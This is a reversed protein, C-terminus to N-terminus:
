RNAKLCAFLRINKKKIFYIFKCMFYCLSINKTKLIIYMLKLYLKKPRAYKISENFNYTELYSKIERKKENETLLCESSFLNVMCEILRDIYRRSIMELSNEDNLLGWYDYLDLMAIHEEERKTYLNSVYKQTESDARKRIFNYYPKKVYTVNQIDKIVDMVFPFDDRYTIPFKINNDIIYKARYMKNWPPYFMNRDFNLYASKRFEEKSSINEIIKNDKTSPIYKQVIYEDNTYYTNINFGCVLLDSNYDTIIDYLDELMRTDIYDDSDFFCYYEGRAKKLGNNRAHHAGQNEQNILIIRDDAKAFEECISKTKDTSGDNVIILEFDSLTQNLISKVSYDIYHEGNYVPMIISIKPKNIRMLKLINKVIKIM